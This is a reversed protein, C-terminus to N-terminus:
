RRSQCTGPGGRAVPRRDGVLRGGEAANLDLTLSRSPDTASVFAVTQVPGERAAGAADAMAQRDEPRAIMTFTEGPASAAMELRGYADRIAGDAEIILVKGPYDGLPNSHFESADPLAVVPALHSVASHRMAMLSAGVGLSLATVALVGLAFGTLGEPASPALGMFQIFVVAIAALVSFGAAVGVAKPRGLVGTMALPALCWSAMPGGMGGVAAAAAAGCIAWLGLLVLRAKDGDFPKMILVFLGPLLGCALALAFNITLGGSVANVALGGIVVVLAWM